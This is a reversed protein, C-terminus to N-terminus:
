SSSNFEVRFKVYSTTIPLGKISSIEEIIKMHGIKKGVGVYLIWLM